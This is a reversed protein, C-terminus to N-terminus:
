DSAYVQEKPLGHIWSVRRSGQHVTLAFRGRDAVVRALQCLKDATPVIRSPAINRLVEPAIRQGEQPRKVL